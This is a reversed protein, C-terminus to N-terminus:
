CKGEYNWKGSWGYSMSTVQDFIDIEYEHPGSVVPNSPRCTDRELTVSIIKGSLVNGAAGKMTFNMQHNHTGKDNQTNNSLIFDVMGVTSLKGETSRLHYLTVHLNTAVFATEGDNKVGDYRAVTLVKTGVIQSGSPITLQALPAVAIRALKARSTFDVAHANVQAGGLLAIAIAPALFKRFTSVNLEGPLHKEFKTRPGPFRM